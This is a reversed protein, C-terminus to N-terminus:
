KGVFEMIKELYAEQMACWGNLMQSVMAPSLDNKVAWEGQGTSTQALRVKFRKQLKQLQEPSLKDKEDVVIVERYFIM